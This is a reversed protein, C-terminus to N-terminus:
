RKTVMLVELIDIVKGNSFAIKLHKTVILPVILRTKRTIFDNKCLKYYDKTVEYLFNNKEAFAKGICSM